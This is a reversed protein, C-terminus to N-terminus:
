RKLRPVFKTLGQIPGVEGGYVNGQADVVLLSDYVASGWMRLRISDGITIFYDPNFQTPGQRAFAGTFLQAGFVLSTRNATAAPPGPVIETTATPVPPAPPPITPVPASSPESTGPFLLSQIGPRAGPVSDAAWSPSALAVAAFIILIYHM